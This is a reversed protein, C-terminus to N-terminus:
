KKVPRKAKVEFLKVVREKLYRQVYSNTTGDPYIVRNGILPKIKEQIVWDALRIDAKEKLEAISYRSNSWLWEWVERESDGHSEVPNEKWRVDLMSWAIIIKIYEPNDAVLLVVEPRENQKFYTLKESFKAESM